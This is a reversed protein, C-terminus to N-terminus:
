SKLSLSIPLTMKVTAEAWNTQFKKAANGKVWYQIRAEGNMGTVVDLPMKVFKNTSPKLGQTLIPLRDFGATKEKTLRSWIIASNQDVEGVKVGSTFYPGDGYSSVMTTTIIFCTIIIKSLLNKM